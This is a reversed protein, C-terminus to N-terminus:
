ALVAPKLLGRVRGLEARLEPTDMATLNEM